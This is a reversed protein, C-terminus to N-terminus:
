LIFILFAESVVSVAPFGIVFNLKIRVQLIPWLTKLFVKDKVRQYDRYIQLIFKPNLDRWESTDHVFYANVSIWPEDDPFNVRQFLHWSLLAFTKLLSAVGLPCYVLPCVDCLM